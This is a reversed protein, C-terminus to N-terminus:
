ARRSVLEISFDTYFLRATRDYQTRGEEVGAVLRMPDCSRGAVVLRQGVTAALILDTFRLVATATTGVPRVDFRFSATSTSSQGATYRRDDLGPIRPPWAVVYNERIPEDSVSVRAAESVGPVGEIGELLAVFADYHALIM